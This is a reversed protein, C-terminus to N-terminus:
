KDQPAPPYLSKLFAKDEKSLTANYGTTEQNWLIESSLNYHMISKPDYASYITKDHDHKQLINRFITKKDLGFAEKYRTYVKPTNFDVTRDPHQHEHELGLAHGFEHLINMALIDESTHINLHMTPKHKPVKLADTGLSSWDGEIDKKTSIRIDADAADVFKFKLNVLPAFTKIHKKIFKKVFDETDMFGITLPKGQPWLTANDAIGRKTRNSAATSELENNTSTNDPLTVPYYAPFHSTIM